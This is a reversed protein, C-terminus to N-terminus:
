HETTGQKEAFALVQETTAEGGESIELGPVALYKRAILETDGTQLCAQCLTVHTTDSQTDEIRALGFAEHPTACVYCEVPTGYDPARKSLCGCNIFLARGIENM